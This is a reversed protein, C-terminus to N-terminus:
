LHKSLFNSTDDGALTVMGREAMDLITVVVTLPVAGKADAIGTVVMIGSGTEAGRGLGPGEESISESVLDTDGRKTTANMTADGKIEIGTGIEAGIGGVTTKVAEVGAEGKREPHPSTTARGAPPLTWAWQRLERM